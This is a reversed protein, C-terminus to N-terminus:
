SRCIAMQLHARMTSLFEYGDMRANRYRPAGPRAAADYSAIELRRAGDRAPVPNWGARRVATSLVHRMSLSDDVILISYPELEVSAVPHPAVAHIRPEDAAGVVDATNLILVVSGDGLLTAGWVGRVRRLHSGLTKVVAGNLKAVIDKPTRSM